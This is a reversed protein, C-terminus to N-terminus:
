IWKVRGKGYEMWKVLFVNKEKKDIQSDGFWEAFGLEVIVEGMFGETASHWEGSRLDEDFQLM